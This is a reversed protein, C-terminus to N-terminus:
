WWTPVVRILSSGLVPTTSRSQQVPYCRSRLAAPPDSAGVLAECDQEGLDHPGAVRRFRDTGTRATAQDHTPAAGRDVGHVPELIRHSTLAEIGRDLGASVLDLDDKTRTRECGRDESVGVGDALEVQAECPARSLGDPADLHILELGLIRPSRM